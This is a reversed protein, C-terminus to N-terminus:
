KSRVEAATPCRLPVEFAFRREGGFVGLTDGAEARRRGAPLEKLNPTCATEEEFGRLGCAPLGLTHFERLCRDCECTLLQPHRDVLPREITHPQGRLGVVQGVRPSTRSCTGSGRAVSTSTLRTRFGPPRSTRLPGTM